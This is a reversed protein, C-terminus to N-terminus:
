CSVQCSKLESLADCLGQAIASSSTGKSILHQPSLMWETPFGKGSTGWLFPCLFAVSPFSASWTQTSFM